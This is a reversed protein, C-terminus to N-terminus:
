LYRLPKMKQPLQEFALQETTKVGTEDTAKQDLMTAVRQKLQENESKLSALEALQRRLAGMEGRLRPVEAADKQLQEIQEDRIQIAAMAQAQKDQLNAQKEAMAIAEARARETESHKVFFTTTGTVTAAAIQERQRRRQESRIARLSLHRATHYLWGALATQRDMTAAKRALTTFTTQSIEEARPAEGTVRLAVSYVIAVHRQM